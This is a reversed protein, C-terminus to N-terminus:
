AERREILAIINERIEVTVKYENGAEFEDIIGRIQSWGDNTLIGAEQLGDMIFKKAFIINDPDRKKNAETWIFRFHASEVPQIKQVQCERAAIETFTKKMDAAAYYSKSRAARDYDNFDPFKTKIILTQMIEEM